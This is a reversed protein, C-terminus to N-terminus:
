SATVAIVGGAVVLCLAAMGYQRAGVDSVRRALVVAGLIAGALVVAAQVAVLSVCTSESEDCLGLLPLRWSFLDWGRGLPDAALGPLLSIATFLVDSYMSLALAVAVVAPVAAPAISGLAGVETARRELWWLMAAFGGAIVAAGLTAWVLAGDVVNLGGWLASRRIAGFVLGGALVGLVLEAGAPPSWTTSRGRRVMATWSFLLGFVEVRSLWSRRGVVLCGAVTALTYLAVVLGVSRPELADPYAGLYWVWGFAPIAAAWVSRVASSGDDRQLLRATSDWPDVWRWVPGIALSGALLVPWAVAIMLATAINQLQDESGVRGAVIALVLLAVAVTRTLVHWPGLPPGWSHLDDGHPDKAGAARGKTGPWFRAVATVILMAIVAAALPPIELQGPDTLPHALLSALEAM